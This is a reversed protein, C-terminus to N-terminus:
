NSMRRPEVFARFTEPATDSEYHTLVESYDRIWDWGLWTTVCAVELVVLGAAILVPKTCRNWLLGIGMALALPPAATLLFLPVASRVKSRPDASAFILWVTILGLVVVTQGVQVEGQYSGSALAILILTPALPNRESWGNAVLLWGISLLVFAPLLAWLVYALDARLPLLPSLILWLTPSYGYGLALEIPQGVWQAMFRLRAHLDYPSDITGSAFAKTLGFILAFDQVWFRGSWPDYNVGFPLGKTRWALREAVAQLIVVLSAAFGIRLLTGISPFYRFALGNRLLGKPMTRRLRWFGLPATRRVRRGRQRLAVPSHITFAPRRAARALTPPWPETLLIKTRF